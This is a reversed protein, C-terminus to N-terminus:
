PVELDIIGGSTWDQQAKEPYIIKKGGFAFNFYWKEGPKMKLGECTESVGDCIPRRWEFEATGAEVDFNQFPSQDISDDFEKHKAVKTSCDKFAQKGNGATQVSAQPDAKTQGKGVNFNVPYNTDGGKQQGKIFDAKTLTEAQALDFCLALGDKM